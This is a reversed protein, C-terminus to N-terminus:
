SPRLPSPFSLAVERGRGAYKDFWDALLKCDELLTPWGHGQGPRVVLEHAVGVEELKKMMLQAQQIPVLKDADGHIILTPPMAKTVSYIPSEERAVNDIDPKEMKYPGFAPRFPKLEEVALANRDMEGYNLFDTPPFFCAVARVRSSQQDVPDKAKPDGDHGRAGQMLSLHGGASGGSICIRKPDVGYEKAHAHVFRSARDIDQVIEPISYKPQSGHVIAFVTQGRKTFVRAIDPSIADHSSFWGGSVMWLVGIGNPQAPKFVDLTLAVGGKKGYIVDRVRTPEGDNGQAFAAGVALAAVVLVWLWRSRIM